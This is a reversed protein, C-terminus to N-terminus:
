KGNKNDVINKNKINRQKKKERWAEFALDGYALHGLSSELPVSIKNYINNFEKPKKMDFSTM